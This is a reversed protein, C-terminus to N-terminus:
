TDEGLVGPLEETYEEWALRRRNSGEFMVHGNPCTPVGSGRPLERKIGEWEGNICKVPTWQDGFNLLVVAIATGFDEDPFRTRRYSISDAMERCQDPTLQNM